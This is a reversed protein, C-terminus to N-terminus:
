RLGREKKWKMAQKIKKINKANEKIVKELGELAHSLSSIMDGDPLTILKIKHKKRGSM